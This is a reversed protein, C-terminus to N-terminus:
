TVFYEKSKVEATANAVSEATELKLDLYQASDDGYTSSLGLSNNQSDLLAALIYDGGIDILSVDSWGQGLELSLFDNSLVGGEYRLNTDNGDLFGVFIFCFFPYVFKSM